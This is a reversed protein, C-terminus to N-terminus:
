DDLDVNWEEKCGHDGRKGSDHSGSYSKFAEQQATMSRAQVADSLTTNIIYRGLSAAGANQSAAQVSAFVGAVIVLSIVVSLLLRFTPRSM